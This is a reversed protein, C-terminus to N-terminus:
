LSLRLDLGQKTDDKKPSVQLQDDTTNQSSPRSVLAVASSTNFHHPTADEMFDELLFSPKWVQLKQKEEKEGVMMKKKRKNESEKLVDSEQTMLRDRAERISKILRFFKDIKEEENEEEDQDVHCSRTRKRSM